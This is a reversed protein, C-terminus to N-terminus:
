GAALQTEHCYLLWQDELAAAHHPNQQNEDGEVDMTGGMGGEEDEM